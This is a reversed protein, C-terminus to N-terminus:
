GSISDFADHIEVTSSDNTPQGLHSQARVKTFLSPVIGVDCSFRSVMHWLNDVKEGGVEPTQICILSLELLQEDRGAKSLISFNTELFPSLMAVVHNIAGIQQGCTSLQCLIKMLDPLESLDGKGNETAASFAVLLLEESLPKLNSTQALSFIIERLNGAFVEAEEGALKTSSPTVRREVATSVHEKLRKVLEDVFEAPISPKTRLNELFKTLIPLFPAGSLKGFSNKIAKPFLFALIPRACSDIENLSMRPLAFIFCEAFTSVIVTAAARDVVDSALSEWISELFNRLFDPDSKLLDELPLVSLLPLLAPFATRVAGHAGSKVYRLVNKILKSPEASWCDPFKKTFLLVANWVEPQIAADKDQFCKELFRSRMLSLVSALPSSEVQCLDSILQYLSRRIVSHDSALLGWLEKRKFLESITNRPEVANDGLHEFLFGLACISSSVIRGYKAQMDEPNVYRADSLTEPTQVFINDSAYILVELHCFKLAESLKNPFAVQLITLSRPAYM